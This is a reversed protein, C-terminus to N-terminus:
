FSTGVRALPESDNDVILARGVYVEETDDM